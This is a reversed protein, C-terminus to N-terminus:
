LTLGWKRAFERSEIGRPLGTREQIMRLETEPDFRNPDPFDRHLVEGLDSEDLIALLESNQHDHYRERCIAQIYESHEHTDLIRFAKIAYEANHFERDLLLGILVVVGYKELYENWTARYRRNWVQRHGTKEQIFACLDRFSDTQPTTKREASRLSDKKQETRNM